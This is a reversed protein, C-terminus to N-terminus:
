ADTKSKTLALHQPNRRLYAVVYPCIPIVRLSKARAYTLATETLKGAVGQGRHDPHVGVHTISLTEQNELYDLKSLKGDIWVEFRKEASNQTVELGDTKIDM